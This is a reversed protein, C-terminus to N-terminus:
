LLMSSMFRSREGGAVFRDNLPADAFMLRMAASAAKPFARM